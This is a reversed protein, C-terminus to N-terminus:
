NGADDLGSTAALPLHPHPAVCLLGYPDASRLQLLDGTAVDWLFLRGDDSGAHTNSVRTALCAPLLYPTLYPLVHTSAFRM